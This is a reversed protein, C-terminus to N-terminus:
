NIYRSPVALYAQDAPIVSSCIIGCFIFLFVDDDDKAAADAASTNSIAGGGGCVYCTYHIIM